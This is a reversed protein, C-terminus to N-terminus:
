GFIPFSLDNLYHINATAKGAVDQPGEQHSNQRGLDNSRGEEMDFHQPFLADYTATSSTSSSM